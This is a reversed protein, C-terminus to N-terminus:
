SLEDTFIYGEPYFENDIFLTDTKNNIRRTIITEQLTFDKNKKISSFSVTEFNILKDFTLSNKVIGSLVMKSNDKLYLKDNADIYEVYYHKKGYMKANIVIPFPRNAKELENTLYGIQDKVYGLEKLKYYNEASVLLSDTDSYYCIPTKLEPDIKEFINLMISRSYAYVFSGLQNPRKICKKPDQDTLDGNVLKPYDATIDYEVHSHTSIFKDLEVDNNVLVSDQLIPNKCLQGIFGNMTIKSIARFANNEAKLKYWKNIFELFPTESTKDYVYCPGLFKIKYNHRLANKIDENTYIGEGSKLTWTVSFNQDKNPLIPVRLNRPPIYSISYFGLKNENYETEGNNSHRGCGIPFRVKVFDTGICGAPYLSSVDLYVLFDNSKLVEDYSIKKNVIDDYLKSKFFHKMVMCRAGYISSSVFKYTKWDNLIEIVLKNKKTWLSYSCDNVTIFEILNVQEQSYYIDNVKIFLEKLTMCDFSNLSSEFNPTLFLNLDITKFNDTTFSFLQTDKKTHYTITLKQRIFENILLFHEKEAGGYSILYTYKKLGKLLEIFSSFTVNNDEGNYSYNVSIPILNDNETKTEISYFIYETNYDLKHNIKTHRPEVIKNSSYGKYNNWKIRKINCPHDENTILLLRNCIPCKKKETIKPDKRQLYMFHENELYLEICLETKETNRIIQRAENYLIFSIDKKYKNKFYDNVKIIDDIHIMSKPTLGLQKRIFDPKEKTGNLGLFDIYCMLLCNNNTSKPSILNVNNFLKNNCLRRKVCGGSMSLPRVTVTISKLEANREYAMANQEMKYKIKKLMNTLNIEDRDFIISFRVKKDEDDEYYLKIVVYHNNLNKKSTIALVKSLVVKHEDLFPESFFCYGDKINFTMQYDARKNPARHYEVDFLKNKPQRPPKINNTAELAKTIRELERFEKSKLSRLQTKGSKTKILKEGPAVPLKGEKVAKIYAKSGHKLKKPDKIKPM